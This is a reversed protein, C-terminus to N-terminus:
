PAYWVIQRDVAVILEAGDWALQQNGYGAPVQDPVGSAIVDHDEDLLYLHTTWSAMWMTGDDTSAAPSRTSMEPGGISARWRIGGTAIDLAIVENWLSSMLLEGDRVDLDVIGSQTAFGGLYAGTKPDLKRIRDNGTSGGANYNLWLADGSFALGSVDTFEDSYEFRALESGDAGRHIVAVDDHAYYDTQGMRSTAIWLGGAGDSDVGVVPQDTDIYRTAELGLPATCASGILLAVAALVPVRMSPRAQVCHVM